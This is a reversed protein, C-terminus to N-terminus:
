EVYHGTWGKHQKRQGNMVQTMNGSSLGNQKCFEALNRGEYVVGDPGTLVFNKSKVDAMSAVGVHNEKNRGTKTQAMRAVRESTEKTQGTMAQIRNVHRRNDWAERNNQETPIFRCNGLTYNGQDGIRGLVFGGASASISAPVRLDARVVEGLYDAFSLESVLGRQVARERHSEYKEFWAATDAVNLGADQVISEKDTLRM